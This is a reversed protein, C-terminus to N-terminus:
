NPDAAGLRAVHCLGALGALLGSVAFIVVRIRAPSIGVLRAAEENDGKAAADRAARLRDEGADLEAGGGGRTAGAQQAQQVRSEARALEPDASPNSACGAALIAALAVGLRLETPFTVQFPCM